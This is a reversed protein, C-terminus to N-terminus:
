RVYFTVTSSPPNEAQSPRYGVVLVLTILMLVAMFLVDIREIIKM